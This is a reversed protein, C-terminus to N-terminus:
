LLFCFHKSSKGVPFKGVHIRHSGSALSHPRFTCAAPASLKLAVAVPALVARVIITHGSAAVACAAISPKRAAAISIVSVLAVPM